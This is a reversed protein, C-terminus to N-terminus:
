GIDGLGLSKGYTQCALSIAPSTAPDRGANAVITAADERAWTLLDLDRSLDAVKFPPLGAQRQGFLEGPGRIALDLEAIEFGDSTSAIAELRRTADETTPAAILACVGRRDGRGVRGRLQHLQALGFREAHEIIMMTARPVDVGVEIVVTAVLVDIEGRRFRDMVSERESAHMRGHVVALRRGRLPGEALRRHHTEVDALGLESEEIAPVVVFGQESSDIRTNLYRYVDDSKEPGVVRTITPQRGPPPHRITSVDLDGFITLSLTRPIPTATMVLIHPVRGRDDPTRLRARQEVGFRHQEDIIALGLREFRTEKSLLAHTGVVLLLSGDALRSRLERQEAAPTQGTLLAVEVKAGQLMRSIARHHQEALIGTPAMIAAQLGNAAALLMAHVAVATKGSGVDGQLLRNMPHPSELDTEIESVVRAQDRTLEFPLRASIRTRIEPTSPLAAASVGRRSQERRMMVAVQLLLLEEYALRDRGARPADEAEPRHIANWANRRDVLGRAAVIDPPIPDFIPEALRDLAEIVLRELRPSGLGETAPYVPRLRDGRAHDDENAVNWTPNALQLYGNWRKARGEVVLRMGPRLKRMLWGANFWVLRISGTDDELTAEVRPSRGPTSRVAALEGRASVNIEGELEVRRELDAITQEQYEREYRHPLHMLLDALSRLGFDRLRGRISPGVGTLRELDDDLHLPSESTMATGAYCVLM